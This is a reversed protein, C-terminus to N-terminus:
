PTTIEHFSLVKYNGSPIVANVWCSNYWYGNDSYNPDPTQFTVSGLSTRLTGDSHRTRAVLIAGYINGSGLNHGMDLEGQGIVLIVGHWSANGWITLDGTVVLLGYGSSWDPLTLDGQVITSIPNTATGYSPLGNAPGTVHQDAMGSLTQVLGQPGDLSNVTQFLPSLVGSINGVSPNTPQPSSSQYNGARNAYTLIANIVTTTDANSTTGIAPKASESTACTGGNSQDLGSIFFNSNKTTLITGVPGDLTLGAPFNLNIGVPTVLYQLIKQTSGNQGGNPLIAYSTIELVQTGNSPNATYGTGTYYMPVTSTGPTGGDVSVNMSKGSVANIRVWKYLPGPIGLGSLPSINWVSNATHSPNTPNAYGSSTFETAFETDSYPATYPSGAVWPQILEGGAPNVLYYTDGMNLPTAPLFNSPNTTKFAQPNKSLLRGRAEELGSLAAYYVTTSSRYNGALASETGSSVILAIAVIGVLLLVFISILLAIGQEKARKRTLQRRKM